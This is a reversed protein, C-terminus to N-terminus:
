IEIIIKKKVAIIPSYKNNCVRRCVFIEDVSCDRGSNGAKGAGDANAWGIDSLNFAPAGSCGTAMGSFIERGGRGPREDAGNTIGVACVGFIVAAGVGDNFMDVGGIFKCFGAVPGFGSVTARTWSMILFAPYINRRPGTMPPNFKSIHARPVSSTKNVPIMQGTDPSMVAASPPM